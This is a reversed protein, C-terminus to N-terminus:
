KGGMRRDKFTKTSDFVMMDVTFPFTALTVLKVVTWYNIPYSDFKWESLITGSGTRSRAISPRYYIHMEAMSRYRAMWYRAKEVAYSQYTSLHCRAEFPHSFIIIRYSFNYWQRRLMLFSCSTKSSNTQLSMTQPKAWHWQYLWLLAGSIINCPSSTIILIITWCM